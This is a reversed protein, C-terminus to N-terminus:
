ELLLLGFFTIKEYPSTLVELEYGANRATQFVDIGCAEMAPRMKQQHACFRKPAQDLVTEKREPICDDCYACCLGVLALAKYYGSLFANRELEFMTDYLEKIADWLFHHIHSPQVDRNPHADFRALIAKEYCQILRKAEEVSPVYPPCNLHKGYAKCGYRCKWRVWEEVEITDTAILKFDSHIHKLEDLLTNLEMKM